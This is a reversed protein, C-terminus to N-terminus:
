TSQGLLRRWISETIDVGIEKRLGDVYQELLDQAMAQALGTRLQEIQKDAVSYPPVIVTKVQFIIMGQGKAPVQGVGDKPTRYLHAVAAGAFPGDTDTRKLPKTTKVEQGHLAAQAALTAGSRVANAIERAKEVLRDRLRDEKWLEVARSRVEALPRISRPTIKKVDFWVFGENATDVPDSEVGVDTQFISARLKPAQPLNAIEKGSRDKGSADIADLTILKLNLKAAVEKLTAGGAREDEVTDHLNLVQEQARELAISSKLSEKVEDLPKVSKPTIDRVRVLAVSLRGEVPQSVKGKELKFAAEALKKDPIDSKGLTGLAIDSPSLKREKALDDFSTGAEIKKRAEAAEAVSKFVIRDIVRKEATTFESIRSEYATKIDADSVRITSEALSKPELVLIDVQRFEPATFRAKNKEYYGSIESDSPEPLTGAAAPPLVFYEADRTETAHRHLLKLIEGPVPIDAEISGALQSRLRTRRTLQAYLAENLGNARLLAEFQARNFRGQADHFQPDNLIEEAITKNPVALDLQKIKQDLAAQRILETLVQQAVGLQRAQDLTLPRGFRRSLLNIRRRLATQYEEESIQQDGVTALATARQGTYVDSIGWVVFSAALLGILVKAILGGSHKRLADLM